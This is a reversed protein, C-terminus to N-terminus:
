LHNIPLGAQIAHENSAWKRLEFGASNTVRILDDRRKLAQELTDSGQHVDDVYCKNLLIDSAYPFEDNNEKALQEVIRIASYPELFEGFNVTTLWYDQIPEDENEREMCITILAM